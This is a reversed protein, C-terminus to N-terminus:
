EDGRRGYVSVMIKGYRYDKLRYFDNVQEPVEEGKQYECIIKGNESMKDTLTPLVEDLIGKNYPPDLFAIDFSDKTTALFNKAEMAAVRSNKQLNVTKLNDKVVEQAKKSEDVFVAFAAGRSLAEIGMQGCGAFLDLFVCGPIDFQIISFVAEKVMDTTPRVDLGELTKLKRGRAVGTIVRM